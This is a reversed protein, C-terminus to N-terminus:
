LSFLCLTPGEQINVIKLDVRTNTVGQYRPNDLPYKEGAIRIVYMLEVFSMWPEAYFISSHHKGGKIYVYKM